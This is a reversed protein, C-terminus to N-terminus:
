DICCYVTDGDQAAFMAKATAAILEDDIYDYEVCKKLLGMMEDPTKIGSDTDLIYASGSSSIEEKIYAYSPVSKIFFYPRLDKEKLTAIRGGSGFFEYGGNGAYRCGTPRKGTIKECADFLDISDYKIVCKKGIEKEWNKASDIPVHEYPFETEDTNIVDPIDGKIRKIRYFSVDSGM